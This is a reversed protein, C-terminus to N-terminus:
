GGSVPPIIAIEDTERISHQDDAYANNVAIFVSRLGKLSPYNEFLTEKLAAVTQGPCSVTIERTGFIERIVGFAKIKYNSTLKEM